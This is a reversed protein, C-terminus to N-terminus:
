ARAAPEGSRIHVDRQPFPIEIGEDRFATFIAFNLDSQLMKPRTRFTGTWVRLTLTLANDGFADFVVDPAPEAHFLPTRLAEGARELTKLPDSM